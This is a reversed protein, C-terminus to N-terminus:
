MFRTPPLPSKKQNDQWAGMDMINDHHCKENRCMFSITKEKFNFEISLDDEKNMFIHNCKACRCAIVM